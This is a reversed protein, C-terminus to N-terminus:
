MNGFTLGFLVRLDDNKRGALVFSEYSYDTTIQFSLGGYLPFRLQNTWSARFNNNSLAPQLFVINNFFLKNRFFSINAVIRTSNRWIDLDAARLFDTNEYTIANTLSLYPVISMKNAKDPAIRIIQWGFGIGGLYRNSIGRLNSFEYTNFFIAYFTHDYWFSHNINTIFDNEAIRVDREGYTYTADINLKYTNHKNRYQLRNASSFLIRSINGANIQGSGGIQFTILPQKKPPKINATKISDMKFKVIMQAKQNALSDILQATDTQGYCLNKGVFFALFFICARLILNKTSKALNQLMNKTTHKLKM